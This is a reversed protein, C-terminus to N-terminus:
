SKNAQRDSTNLYKDPAGGEMDIDKHLHLELHMTTHVNKYIHPPGHTQINATHKGRHLNSAYPQPNMHPIHGVYTYIMSNWSDTSASKEHATPNTKGVQLLIVKCIVCPIYKGNLKFGPACAYITVYAESGSQHIHGYFLLSLWYYRVGTDHYICDDTHLLSSMCHLPTQVQEHVSYKSCTPLLSALCCHQTISKWAIGQQRQATSHPNNTNPQSSTHSLTYIIQANHQSTVTNALSYTTTFFGQSKPKAQIAQKPQAQRHKWTLKQTQSNMNAHTLNSATCTAPTTPPMKSLNQAVRQGFSSHQSWCCGSAELRLPM